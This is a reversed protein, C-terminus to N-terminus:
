SDWLHRWALIFLIKFRPIHSKNFMNCPMGNGKDAGSNEVTAYTTDISADELYVDTTILNGINPPIRDKTTVQLMRTQIRPSISVHENTESTGTITM